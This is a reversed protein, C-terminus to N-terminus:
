RSRHLVVVLLPDERLSDLFAEAWALPEAASLNAAAAAAAAALDARVAAPAAAWLRSLLEQDLRHGAGLLRAAEVRALWSAEEDRALALARDLGSDVNTGPAQEVVERLAGLLWAQQWATMYGGSLAIDVQESVETPRSEALARLYTALLETESPFRSVLSAIDPLPRVDRAAILTTLYSASTMHVATNNIM